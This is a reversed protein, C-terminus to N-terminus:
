FDNRTATICLHWGLLPELRKLVSNPIWRFYWTKHIGQFDRYPYIWRGAVKEFKCGKLLNRAQRRSYMKTIPCGEQQEAYKTVISNLRWFAGKGKRILLAFPVWSYRYYVLLKFVSHSGSYYKRIQDIVKGPDPMHHLTGCAYILDFEQPELYENLRQSDAVVFTINHGVGSDKAFRKAHAISISSIDTATVIAGYKAFTIADTGVGCGIELIKKGKWHEFDAWELVHPNMFYRVSQIENWDNGFVLDCPQSDWFAQVSETTM